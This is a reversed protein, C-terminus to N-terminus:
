VSLVLQVIVPHSLVTPSRRGAELLTDKESHILHSEMREAKMEETVEKCPSNCREM